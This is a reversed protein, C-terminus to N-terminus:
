PSRVASPRPVFRGVSAEYRAYAEGHLKRLHPEEVYRVQLEVAAAFAVVGVISAANPVMLALGVASLAMASFIPNRVIQFAGDTVLGTREDPDVGIRWESGMSLQAAFTLAIGAAALATGAGRVWVSDTLPEVGTLELIPAVFAAVLALVLLWAALWEVSGLAATLGGPRLGSDGTTRRQVVTRLVFIVLFMVAFMALALAAM